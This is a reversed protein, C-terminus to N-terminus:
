VPRLRRTFTRPRYWTLRSTRAGIVRITKLAGAEGWASPWVAPVADKFLASRIATLSQMVPSASGIKERWVTGVSASQSNRAFRERRLKKKM